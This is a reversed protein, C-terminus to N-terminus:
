HRTKFLKNQRFVKDLFGNSTGELLLQTKELDVIVDIRHVEDLIGLKELYKTLHRYEIDETVSDTSIKIQRDGELTVFMGHLVEKPVCNPRIKQLLEFLHHTASEKGSKRGLLVIEPGSDTFAM